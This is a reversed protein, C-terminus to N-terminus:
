ERCSAARMLVFRVHAATPPPGYEDPAIRFACMIAGGNTRVRDHQQEVDYAIHAAKTDRLASAHVMIVADADHGRKLDASRASWM